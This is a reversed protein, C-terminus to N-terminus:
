DTWPLNCLHYRKHLYPIPPSRARIGTPSRVCCTTYSLYSRIWKIIYPNLNIVTVKKSYLLMHYWILLRLFVSCVETKIIWPNYVTMHSPCCHLLPQSVVLSAGNGIQFQITSLCTTLSLTAFTCTNSREACATQIGIFALNM